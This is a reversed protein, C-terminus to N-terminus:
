TRRIPFSEIYADPKAPDFEKGLIVEKRYPDPATLGLEALRKKAETALM